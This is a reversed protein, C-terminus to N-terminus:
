GKSFAQVENNTLRQPYFFFKSIIGNLFNTGAQGSGIFLRDLGVATLGSIDTGAAAGNAASAFSNEKYAGCFNNIIGKTGSIFQAQNVNGSRVTLSTWGSAGYSASATCVISNNFSNDTLQYASAFKGSISDVQSFVETYIAGESANFWDSFNTGTMTAVDANRTLRSGENIIDSTPFAAIELQGNFILIDISNTTNVTGRSGIQINYGTAAVSGSFSFRQWNPTVTIATGGAGTSNRFYVTQNLGTNSKAWISPSSNHPNAYAVAPINRIFSFDAATNGAGRNAQLRYANNTGDPSIGSNPTVVPTVGTGGIASDWAANDFTSSYLLENQRSEEIL